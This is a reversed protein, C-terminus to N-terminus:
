KSTILIDGMIAVVPENNIKLETGHKIDGTENDIVIRYSSYGHGLELPNPM